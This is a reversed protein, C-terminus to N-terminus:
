SKMEELTGSKEIVERTYTQVEKRIAFPYKISNEFLPYQLLKLAFTWLVISLGAATGAELGLPGSLTHEVFMIASKNLEIINQPFGADVSPLSEFGPPAVDISSAFAPSVM